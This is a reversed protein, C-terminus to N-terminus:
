TALAERFWDIRRQAYGLASFRQGALRGAARGTERRHQADLLPRLADALSRPDNAQYVTTFEVLHSVDKVRSSLVLPLGCSAADLYSISEDMWVGIDAARYYEGLGTFPIFPVVTVNPRTTLADQQEGAGILLGKVRYGEDALLHIAQALVLPNKAQTFKGSYVCVVDDPGIGLSARLAERRKGDAADAVPHFHDIDVPLNLVRTRDRPIGFFAAAIDACDRTPVVCHDARPGIYLRGPLARLLLSKLRAPTYWPQPDYALPFQSKGTHNGIVLKCRLRGAARACDLAIWGVSVFICILDPALEGLKDGLRQLRLYGFNPVGVLTHVAYGDIQQSGLPNTNRSAFDSGFLSSGTGKQYYPLKQSTIVDVHHGLRALYKPLTNSVYGMERAFTEVVIAIRLPREGAVHHLAQAQRAGHSRAEGVETPRQEQPATSM